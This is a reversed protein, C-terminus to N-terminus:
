VDSSIIISNHEHSYNYISIYVSCSQIVSRVCRPHWVELHRDPNRNYTRSFYRAQYHIPYLQGQERSSTKNYPPPKAGSIRLRPVQHLHITYKVGRASWGRSISWTVVSYSAPHVGSGTQFNQLLFWDRAGTPFYFWSDDLEHRTVLIM